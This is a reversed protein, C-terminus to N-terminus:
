GGLNTESVEAFAARLFVSSTAGGAACLARGSFGVRKGVTKIKGDLGVVVVQSTAYYDFIAEDEPSKLLDEYTAGPTVQGLNEQIVPGTPVESRTPAPGRGKPVAKCILGQSDGLWECPQGFIGNLAVGPVRRAQASEVDVIWLSLGPDAAADIANVFFVHRADPAWGAFRIKAQEPLGALPKEAGDPLAKLSLATVYRGRSPGNTKPNFRLGALRFEPQALDSISPLGSIPEILLWRGNGPSVEVMPTPRVDVLEVIARPPEQYRAPGKQEEQACLPLCFLILLVALRWGPSKM